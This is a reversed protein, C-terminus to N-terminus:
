IQIYIGIIYIPIFLIYLISIYFHILLIYSFGIKEAHTESTLIMTRSNSLDSFDYNTEKEVNEVSSERPLYKTISEGYFEELEITVLNEQHDKEYSMATDDNKCEAIAVNHKRTADAVIFTFYLSLPFFGSAFGFIHIWIAAQSTNFVFYIIEGTFTTFLLFSGVYKFYIFKILQPAILTEALYIGLIGCTAGSSGIYMAYDYTWPLIGYFWRNMFMQGLGGLIGTIFFSFTFFKWTYKTEVYIGYFILAFSNKILHWADKHIFIMTILKWLKWDRLDNPWLLGYVHSDSPITQSFPDINYEYSYAVMSAIFSLVLLICVFPIKQKISGHLSLMITSLKFLTLGIYKIGELSNCDAYEIEHLNTFAYLNLKEILHKIKSTM